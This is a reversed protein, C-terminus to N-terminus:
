KNHYSRFCNNKDNMCLRVKCKSCSVRTYGTCSPNRCRGKEVHIPWHDYKDFRTNSSPAPSPAPRSSTPAINEKNISDLSPRGRKAPLPPPPSSRLLSGAVNVRFSLLSMVDKKKMKFQSCHRRYLLWANVLSLDILHFIIKMYFKKSRVNIRYLSILMDILDVGGMYQNYFKVVNPQTIQVHKKEKSSWREVLSIPECGYLTSLCNVVGNDFWRTICLEVGDLEGVRNDMAGRGEHSLEKENKMLVDPVRNSRITGVSLIGLKYLEVQLQVTTYYNDFYLKHNISRPVTECLKLIINTCFGLESKDSKGTFFIFDYCIGSEAGALLFMKYGWRNPKMPMYQKMVSRGKFPIIQEDASLKEEKPIKRFNEKVIDLLPRVKFARDVNPDNNNPQNTNDVVHLNSKINLFRDRPMVSSISQVRTDQMWFFRQQPFSYVGTMLLIGIFQKMEHQTVGLPKNSNKQVSYLNSQNALLAISEEGFMMNFYDIPNLVDAPPSPLSGIFDATPPSFDKKKWHLKKKRKSSKKAQLVAEHDWEESSSSYESSTSDNPLNRKVINIEDESESSDSEEESLGNPIVPHKKSSRQKAM